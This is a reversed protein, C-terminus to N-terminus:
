RVAIASVRRRSRSIGSVGEGASPGQFREKFGAVFALVSTRTDRRADHAEELMDEVAAVTLLGAVFTLAAM